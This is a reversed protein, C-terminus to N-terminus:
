RTKEAVIIPVRWPPDDRWLVQMALGAAVTRQEVRALPSASAVGFVQRNLWRWAPWDLDLTVFLGAVILRGGPKLVRGFEALSAPDVIYEAPFTAVVSGFSADAFPLRQARGQLRSAHLGRRRLTAAAQRQM